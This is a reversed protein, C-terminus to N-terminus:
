CPCGLWIEKTKSYWAGCSVACNAKKKCNRCNKYYSLCTCILLPQGNCFCYESECCGGPYWDTCETWSQPPCIPINPSDTTQEQSLQTSVITGIPYVPSGIRATETDWPIDESSFIRPFNTTIIHRELRLFEGLSQAFLYNAAYLHEKNLDVTLSLHTTAKRNPSKIPPISIGIIKDQTTAREFGSQKLDFLFGKAELEDVAQRFLPSEVVIALAKAFDARDGSAATAISSPISVYQQSLRNTPSFWGL